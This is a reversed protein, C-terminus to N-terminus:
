SCRELHFRLWEPTRRVWFTFDHGGKWERFRPSRMRAVLRRVAPAFPDADGVDIWTGPPIRRAREILDQREFDARDDFAGEFPTGPGPHRPFVAPSHAAVSCFRGKHREALHLAGFGGMSIGGIAVRSADAGYRRAAQPIAEEVVMRGWDGSERDHWYSAEDGDPALVVPARGGLRVLEDVLEPLLMSEPSSGQGHLLVLLPAGDPARTPDLVRARLTRGVAESRLVLTHSTAGALPPEPRAPTTPEARQEGGCGALGVLAILLARRM